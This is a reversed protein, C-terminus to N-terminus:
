EHPPFYLPILEEYVSRDEDKFVVFVVRKIKESDGKELSRRVENLAVHTADRMPYGYIGTSISPFAITECNNAIALQLSVRYCSALQSACLQVASLSYIPGVAHIVHKAPLDYGDTIKADGTSCGNLTRCEALLKRGAARHIAGDVGGGGLLKSNAANVIADVELKTIDGQFLSVKDLIGPRPPYMVKDAAHLATTRFHEGITSIEQLSAMAQPM